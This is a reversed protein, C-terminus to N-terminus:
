SGKKIYIGHKIQNNQLNCIGTEQLLNIKCVSAEPLSIPMIRLTMRSPSLSGTLKKELFSFGASESDAVSSSHRALM